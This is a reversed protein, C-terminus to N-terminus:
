KLENVDPDGTQYYWDSRASLQYEWHATPKWKASAALHGYNSTDVTTDSKYLNGYELRADDLGFTFSDTSYRVSNTWSQHDQPVAKIAQVETDDTPTVEEGNEDTTGEITITDSDDPDIVPIGKGEGDGAVEMIVMEGESSPGYTRAKNLLNGTDNAAIRYTGGSASAAMNSL